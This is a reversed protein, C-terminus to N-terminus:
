AGQNNWRRYVASVDFEGISSPPAKSSPAAPTTALGLWKRRLARWDIERTRRPKSRWRPRPPRSRAFAQRMGLSEERM